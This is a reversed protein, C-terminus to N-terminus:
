TFPMVAPELPRGGLGRGGRSDIFDAGAHVQFLFDPDTEPDEDGDEQERLDEEHDEHDGEEEAM